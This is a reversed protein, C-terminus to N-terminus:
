LGERRGAWGGIWAGQGWNPTPGVVQPGKGQGAPGQNAGWGWDPAPGALWSGINGEGRGAQGRHAGIPAPRSSGMLVLIRAGSRLHNCLCFQNKKSLFNEVKKYYKLNQSFIKSSMSKKTKLYLTCSFHKFIDNIRNGVMRPFLLVQGLQDGLLTVSCNM